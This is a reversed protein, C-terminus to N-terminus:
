SSPPPISKLLPRKLDKTPSTKSSSRSAQRKVEQQELYEKRSGIKHGAYALHSTPRGNDDLFLGEDVMNAAAEEVKQWGGRPLYARMTLTGISNPFAHHVDHFKMDMWGRAPLLINFIADIYPVHRLGSPDWAILCAYFSQRHTMGHFLLFLGSSAIHGTALLWIMLTFSPDMLYLIGLEAWYFLAVPIRESWFAAPNGFWQCTIEWVSFESPWFSLFAITKLLPRVSWQSDKDGEKPDLAAKSPHHKSRHDYALDCWCSPLPTFGCFVAFCFKHPWPLSMRTHHSDHVGFGWRAFALIFLLSMIVKNYLGVYQGIIALWMAAWWIPIQRHIMAEEEETLTEFLFAYEKKDALATNVYAHVLGQEPGLEGSCNVSYKRQINM